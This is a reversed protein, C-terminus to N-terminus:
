APQQQGDSEAAVQPFTLHRREGVEVGEVVGDVRAHEDDVATSHPGGMRQQCGGRGLVGVCALPPLEVRRERVHDLVVLKTGPVQREGCSSGVLRQGLQDRRCGGARGCPSGHALSGEQALVCQPERRGVRRLTGLTDECEGVVEAHRALLLSQGVQEGGLQFRERRTPM